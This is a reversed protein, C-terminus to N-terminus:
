RSTKSALPLPRRRQLGLRVPPLNRRLGTAAAQQQPDVTETVEGTKPDHTETNVKTDVIPEAKAAQARTARAAAPKAQGFAADLSPADRGARAEGLLEALSTEGDKLANLIGAGDFMKDLTIDDAGRVGLVELVQAPTVKQEGFAAFMAERREGLTKIDGMAAARAKQYGPNWYGKAVGALIANRLAKSAAANSITNILDNSFRKAKQGDKESTTIGMRVSKAWAVNSELDHFIGTAEVDTDTLDTRRSAVRANGYSALVIEAFRISPGEIYDQEWAGTEKNKKKGVPKRFFCSMATETDLTALTEIQRKVASIARPFKHATAISIDIEARTLGGIMNQDVVLAPFAGEERMMVEGEMVRDRPDGSDDAM